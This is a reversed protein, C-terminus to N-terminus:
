DKGEGVGLMGGRECYVFHDVQGLIILIIWTGITNPYHHLVTVSEHLKCLPRISDDKCEDIFHNIGLFVLACELNGV